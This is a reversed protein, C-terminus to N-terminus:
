TITYGANEENGVINEIRGLLFKLKETVNIKNDALATLKSSDFIKNNYYKPVLVMFTM